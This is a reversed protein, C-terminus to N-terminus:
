AKRVIGLWTWPTCHVPVWGRCPLATDHKWLEPCVRSGLLPRPTWGARHGEVSLSVVGQTYGEGLLAFEAIVFLRASRDGAALRPAEKLLARVDREGRPVHAQQCKRLAFHEAVFLGVGCKGDKCALSSPYGALDRAVIIAGLLTAKRLTAAGGRVNMGNPLLCFALVRKFHAVQKSGYKARAAM